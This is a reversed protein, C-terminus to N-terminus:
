YRKRDSDQLYSGADTADKTFQDMMRSLNLRLVGGDLKSYQQVGPPLRYSNWSSVVSINEPKLGPMKGDCIAEILSITAPKKEDKKLKACFPHADKEQFGDKPVNVDTIIHVHKGQAQLADVTKLADSVNGCLVVPKGRFEKRYGDEIGKEDEIFIFAAPSKDLTYPSINAVNEPLKTLPPPPSTLTASNADVVTQPSQSMADLSADMENKLKWVVSSSRDHSPAVVCQVQKGQKQLIAASEKAAEETECLVVPYDELEKRYDPTSGDKEAVLVFAVPSKTLINKGINIASKPLVMVGAISRDYAETLRADMDKYLNDYLNPTKAFFKTGAPCHIDLNYNTSTVSIDGAALGTIKGDHVAQALLAGDPIDMSYPIQKCDPHPVDDEYRYLRVGGDTYIHVLKGQSRMVEASKLGDSISDCLVLPMEELNEAYRERQSERDEIIIFGLPSNKLYEPSLNTVTEPFDESSSTTNIPLGNPSKSKSSANQIMDDMDSRITEYFNSYLKSYERVGEPLQAFNAASFLSINAKDLDKIKGDCVARVLQVGSPVKKNVDIESCDPHQTGHYDDEYSIVPINADTMVHVEKGQKKMAAATKLCDSINSCVLVPYDQFQEMITMQQQYDDELLIFAVPSAKLVDQSINEVQEPIVGDELAKKAAQKAQMDADLKQRHEMAELLSTRGTEVLAQTVAEDTAPVSLAHFNRYQCLEATSRSTAQDGCLTMDIGPKILRARWTFEGVARAVEPALEDFPKIASRTKIGWAIQSEVDGRKIGLLEETLDNTGFCLFDSKNVVQELVSDDAGAYTEPMLDATEVMTGLRFKQGFTENKLINRIETLQDASRVAPVLIRPTVEPHKAAATFIAKCQARAIEPYALSFGVGRLNNDYAHLCLDKVKQSDVGIAKATAAIEKDDSPNPFFEAPPFDFLRVNIPFQEGQEAFIPELDAAHERTLEALAQEKADGEALLAKLLLLRRNDSRFMPETRLLGIGRVGKKQKAFRVQEASSANAMVGVGTHDSISGDSDKFHWTLRNNYDGIRAMEEAARLTEPAPEKIPLKEGYVTLNTGDISLWDGSKGFPEPTDLGEHKLLVGDNVSFDPYKEKNAFLVPIRADKAWIQIHQTGKALMIVGNAHSLASTDAPSYDHDLVLVVPADPTEAHIRTIDAESYALRGCVSPGEIGHEIKKSKDSTAAKVDVRSRFAARISSDDLLQMAEAHTIKDETVRRIVESVPIRGKEAEAVNPSRYQDLPLDTGFENNYWERFVHTTSRQSFVEMLAENKAQAAVAFFLENTHFYKAGIADLKPQDQDRFGSKSMLFLNAPRYQPDAAMATLIDPGWEEEAEPHQIKYDSIITVDEPAFPPYYPDDEPNLYEEKMRKLVHLAGAKDSVHIVELGRQYLARSVSQDHEMLGHKKLEMDLTDDIVIICKRPPQEQAPPYMDLDDEEMIM